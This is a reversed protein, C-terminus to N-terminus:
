DLIGQEILSEVIEEPEQLETDIIHLNLHRGLEEFLDEYISSMKNMDVIVKNYDSGDLDKMQSRQRQELTELSAATWLITMKDKNDLLFKKRADEVEPIIRDFYRDLAIYDYLGREVIFRHAFQKGLGYTKRYHDAIAENLSSKGSRDTGAIEIFVTQLANEKM